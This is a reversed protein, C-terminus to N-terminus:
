RSRKAINWDCIVKSHTRNSVHITKSTVKGATSNGFDLAGAGDSGDLQLVVEEGSGFQYSFMQQLIEHQHETCDGNATLMETGGCSTKHVIQSPAFLDEKRGGKGGEALYLDLLEQSSLAGLGAAQRRRHADVQTLYMPAPRRTEDYATGLLEVM